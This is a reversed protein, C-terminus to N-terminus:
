CRCQATQVGKAALQADQGSGVYKHRVKRGHFVALQVIDVVVFDTEAVADVVAVVAQLRAHFGGAAPNNHFSPVEYALNFTSFQFNFNLESNPIRFESGKARGLWNPLQNSWNRRIRFRFLNYM